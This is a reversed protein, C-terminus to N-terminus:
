LIHSSESLTTKANLAAKTLSEDIFIRRSRLELVDPQDLKRLELGSDALQWSKSIAENAREATLGDNTDSVLLINAQAARSLKEQLWQIPVYANLSPIQNAQLNFHGFESPGAVAKVVLRSALSLESDPAIPIDRSMLAPQEIRLLVEDGITVSLRAALSDNLVIGDSFDDGFPNKDPGLSFFRNDVGLVEIKNARKTGDSNAVIGRLYLVPAAITNLNQALEDALETTFFRNNAVLALHTKGLRATMMMRLSHRVSDGVVLAGTLIATSTMVALLVGLNTRWYFVLSRKVLGLLRM